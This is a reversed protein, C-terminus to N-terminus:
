GETHKKTVRSQYKVTYFYHNEVHWYDDKKHSPEYAELFCSTSTKQFNWLLLARHYANIESSESNQIVINRSAPFYAGCTATAIFEM